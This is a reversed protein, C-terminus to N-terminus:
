GDKCEGCLVGKRHINDCLFANLETFLDIYLGDSRSDFYPTRSIVIADHYVGIWNGRQIKTRFDAENCNVVKSNFDGNCQCSAVADTDGVLEMGPPCPLVTVDLEVQIVRPDITELIVTGNIVGDNRAHIKIRNSSIYLSSSDIDIDNNNPSSRALFVSASNVDNKHDDWMTLDTKSRKGPFVKISTSDTLYKSANRPGFSISM